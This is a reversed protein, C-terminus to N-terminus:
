LGYLEILSVFKFDIPLIFESNNIEEEKLMKVEETIVFSNNQIKEVRMDIGDKLMNIYDPLYDLMEKGDAVLYYNVFFAKLKEVELEKGYARNNTIWLNRVYQNGYKVIYKTSDYGAIKVKENTAEFSVRDSSFLKNKRQIKENDYEQFRNFEFVSYYKPLIEKKSKELANGFINDFEADLEKLTGSWYNKKNKNYFTIIGTNLDIITGEDKDESKIINNQVFSKVVKGEDESEIIIGGYVSISLLLLLVIFLSKKEYDM